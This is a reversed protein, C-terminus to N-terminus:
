RLLEARLHDHAPLDLPDLDTQLVRQLMWDALGPNRALVPGHLYTAVVRDRFAGELAELDGNGTGRRVRALPATGAGLISRGGHNEFGTLLPLALEALPEAVLEGIARHNLRDTIVDLLGMGEHVTGTATAFSTGLLQLGACVGFAHAGAEVATVLPSKRLQRLAALQAEDEGGGLVYLDGHAPVTDGLAVKVLDCHIGRWRLRQQLVLVNGGDGYTGLLEPFLAILRLRSATV